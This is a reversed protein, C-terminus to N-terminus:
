GNKIKDVITKAEEDFNKFVEKLINIIEGYGELILKDTQKLANNYVKELKEVLCMVEQLSFSQKELLMSLVVIMFFSKDKINIKENNILKWVDEKLSKRLDEIM